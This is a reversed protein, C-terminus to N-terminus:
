RESDAEPTPHNQKSVMIDLIVRDTEVMGDSGLRALNALCLEIDDEVIGQRCTACIGDMALMASRVAAGVASAVKMACGTKAGDCIMGALTGVMNRIAREIEELGGGLLMVIGCSSAMAAVTAGCLASLRGLGHKVHISTLHSMILARALTEDDAKGWRAFAVVPMTCTIGQNGSGSNSMVAIMAGDMRADSAAATWKVATTAVDDSMLRKRINEDITRGVRLGYEHALGEVAAAENLRAAELIFAIDAFDATTAFAHIKAITLPWADQAPGGEAGTAVRSFIERGDREILTVNSHEDELVARARHGGGEVAVEAYLLPVGEAVAVTVRGERLMRRGDEAQEPTLGSLVDLGKDPDGGLAGVAAAIDMGTLGTGPVGVGMGNKLLNGSLRVEIREPKAGLARTAHATALSVAIPETCGTAPVVEKHLLAIFKSWEPNRM